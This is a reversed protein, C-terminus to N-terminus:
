KEETRRMLDGCFAEADDVEGTMTDVCSAFDPFQCQEGFPM